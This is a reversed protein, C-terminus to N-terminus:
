HLRFHNRRVFRLDIRMERYSGNKKKIRKRKKELSRLPDSLGLVLILSCLQHHVKPQHLICGTGGLESWDSKFVCM